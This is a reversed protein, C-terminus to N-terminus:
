DRSARNVASSIETVVGLTVGFLVYKIGNMLADAPNFLMVEKGTEVETGMMPEFGTLLVYGALLAGLVFALVAIVQGIKTFAV